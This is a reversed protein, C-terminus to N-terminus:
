GDSQYQMGFLHSEFHPALAMALVVRITMLNVLNAVTFMKM